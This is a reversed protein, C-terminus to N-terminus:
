LRADWAIRPWLYSRLTPLNRQVRGRAEVDTIGRGDQWAYMGQEFATALDEWSDYHDRLVKAVARTRAQCEEVSIYGAAVGIRLLDLARCLDWSPNGTTGERLDDIVRDFSARGTAGYWSELSSRARGEDWQGSDEGGTWLGYAGQAWFDVKGPMPPGKRLVRRAIGGILVGAFALGLISLILCVPLVVAVEYIGLSM